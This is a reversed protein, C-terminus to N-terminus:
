VDLTVILCFITKQHLCGQFIVFLNNEVLNNETGGSIMRFGCTKQQNECSYFNIRKINSTFNASSSRPM